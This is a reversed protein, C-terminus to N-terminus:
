FARIPEPAPAKQKRGFLEATTQQVAAFERLAQDVDAELEGLQRLAEDQRLELEALPDPATKAASPM